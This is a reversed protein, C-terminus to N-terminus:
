LILCVGQSHASFLVTLVSRHAEGGARNDSSSNKTLYSIEFTGQPSHRLAGARQSLLKAGVQSRILSHSLTSSLAIFSPFFADVHLREFSGSHLTRAGNTESGNRTELTYWNRAYWCCYLLVPKYVYIIAQRNLINYPSHRPHAKSISHV